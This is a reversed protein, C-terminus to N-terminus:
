QKPIGGRRTPKSKNERNIIIQPNVHNKYFKLDDELKRIKAEQGIIQNIITPPVPIKNREDLEKELLAIKSRLAVITRNLDIIQQETQQAYTTLVENDQWDSM